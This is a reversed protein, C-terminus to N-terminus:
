GLFVASVTGSGIGFPMGTDSVGSGTLQRSQTPNVGLRVTCSRAVAALDGPPGGNSRAPPLSRVHGLILAWVTAAATAWPDAAGSVSTDRAAGSLRAAEDATALVWAAPAETDPYAV